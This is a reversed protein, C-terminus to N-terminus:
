YTRWGAAYISEENDFTVQRINGYSDSQFVSLSAYYVTRPSGVWMLGDQGDKTLPLYPYVTWDMPNKMKVIDINLADM